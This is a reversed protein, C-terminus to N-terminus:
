SETVELRTGFIGEYYAELEKWVGDSGSTLLTHYIRQANLSSGDYYCDAGDLFPCDTRKQQDEYRPTKSHYGLDAPMPHCLVHNLDRKGDLEKQVHPLHWNTYLVFQVAGQEGKLLFRLQVGHIGYDPNQGRKDFAPEFEISKEM